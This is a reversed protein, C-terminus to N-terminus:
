LKKIKRIKINEKMFAKIKQAIEGALITIVYHLHSCM